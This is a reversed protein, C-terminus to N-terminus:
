QLVDPDNLLPDHMETILENQNNPCESNKPYGKKWTLGDQLLWGEIMSEETDVPQYVGGVLEYHMFKQRILRFGHVQDSKIRSEYLKKWLLIDQKGDKDWDGQYIKGYARIGAKMQGPRDSEVGTRLWYQYEMGPFDSTLYAPVESASVTNTYNLKSSFIIKNLALSFISWDVSYESPLAIVLDGYGSETIDGYRLPARLICGMLDNAESLVESWEMGYLYTDKVEPEIYESDWRSLSTISLLERAGGKINWKGIKANSYLAFYIGEDKSGVYAALSDDPRIFKYVKVDHGPIFWGMEPDPAKGVDLNSIDEASSILSLLALGSLFLKSLKKM